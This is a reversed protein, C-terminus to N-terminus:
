SRDIATQVKRTRPSQIKKVAVRTMPKSVPVVAPSSKVRHRRMARFAFVGCIVSGFMALVAPRLVVAWSDVNDGSFLALWSEGGSATETHWEEITRSTNAILFGAVSESQGSAYGTRKWLEDANM